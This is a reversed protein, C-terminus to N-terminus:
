SVSRPVDLRMMPERRFSDHEMRSFFFYVFGTKDRTSTRGSSATNAPHLGLEQMSASGGAKPM